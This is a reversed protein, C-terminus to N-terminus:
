IFIFAFLIEGIRQQLSRRLSVSCVQESIKGCVECAFSRWCFIALLIEGTIQMQCISIIGKHASVCVHMNMPIFKAAILRFHFNYTKKVRVENQLFDPRVLEM